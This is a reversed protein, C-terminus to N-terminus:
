FQLSPTSDIIKPKASPIAFIKVNLTKMMMKQARSSYTEWCALVWPWSMWRFGGKRGGGKGERSEGAVGRNGQCRRM